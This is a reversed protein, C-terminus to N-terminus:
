SETNLIISTGIIVLLYVGNSCFQFSIPYNRNDLVMLMVLDKFHLISYEINQKGTSKWKM